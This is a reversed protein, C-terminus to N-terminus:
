SPDREGGQPADDDPAGDEAEEVLQDAFAQVDNSVGDAPPDVLSPDTPGNPGDGDDDPGGDSPAGDSGGSDEENEDKRRVLAVDSVVSGPTVAIVRVGQTSRGMVSIDSAKTRIVIGESSILM